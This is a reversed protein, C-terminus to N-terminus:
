ITKFGLFNNLPASFNGWYHFKYNNHPNYDLILGTDDFKVNVVEINSQIAKNMINSFVNKDFNSSFNTLFYFIIANLSGGDKNYTYTTSKEKNGKPIGLIKFKNNVLINIALRSFDEFTEKEQYKEESIFENNFFEKKIEKSFLGLQDDLLCCFNMIEFVTDKSSIKKSKRSVISKLILILIEAKSGAIYDQESLNSLSKEISSFSQGSGRGAKVNLKCNLGTEDNYYLDYNSANVSDNITINGNKKLLNAAVLVEGFDKGISSKKIIEIERDNYYVDKCVSQNLLKILINIFENKNNSKWYNSLSPSIDYLGKTVKNLFLDLDNFYGTVGINVPTLQKQIVSDKNNKKYNSSCIVLPFPIFYIQPINIFFTKYSSSYRPDFCSIYSNKNKTLYEEINIMFNKYQNSSIRLHTEHRNNQPYLVAGNFFSALYQLAKKHNTYDIM